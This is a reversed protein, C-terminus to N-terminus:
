ADAFATRAPVRELQGGAYDTVFPLDERHVYGIFCDCTRKPCPRPGLRAEFSGDYLNGLPEAVFHCRRVDGDGNVSLVRTGTACPAGLSPPPSLNWRFHPDVRALRAVADDDYYEPPRVDYANLWLPVDEPLAARLREIDDFSERMAVMGVSFRIGRRHLERCRGVFVELSVESPHWTCWLAFSRTDVRDLWRTGICLNTQIAVRRVHPLHSLRTMADRYHRRVLGEGWPTFLISVAHERRSVWDVFRALDAADRQLTARSDRTKAFPCYGCDYNCSSLRGRYLLSLHRAPAARADADLMAIAAHPMDM